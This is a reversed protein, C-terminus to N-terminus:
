KAVQVIGSVAPPQVYRPCIAGFFRTNIMGALAHCNLHASCGLSYASESKFFVTQIHGLLWGEPVDMLGPEDDEAASKKSDDKDEDEKHLWTFGHSAGRSGGSLSGSCLVGFRQFAASNHPTPPKRLPTPGGSGLLGASNAIALRM